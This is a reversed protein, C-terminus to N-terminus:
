IVNRTNYGFAATALSTGLTVISGGFALLAVVPLSFRALSPIGKTTEPTAPKSQAAAEACALPTVTLSVALMGALLLMTSLAYYDLVNLKFQQGNMRIKHGGLNHKGM